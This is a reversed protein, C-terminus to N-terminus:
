RQLQADLIELLADREDNYRQFDAEAEAVVTSLDVAETENVYTVFQTLPMTMGDLLLARADSACDPVPTTAISNQLRLMQEVDTYLDDPSKVVGERMLTLFDRYQFSIAQLWGELVDSDDCSGGAVVDPVPSVVLPSLELAPRDTVECASILLVGVVLWGMLMMRMM